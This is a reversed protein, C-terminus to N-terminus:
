NCPKPSCPDIFTGPCTPVGSGKPPEKVTYSAMFRTLDPSGVRVIGTFTTGTSAHDFDCCLNPEGQIGPGKPPEKVTYAKMFQTLDTSNVYVIGTFTTGTKLGDMDGHCQRAYCWCRPKGLQVWTTYCPDATFCMNVTCDSTGTNWASDACGAKTSCVRYRYLGNNVDDCKVLDSGTYINVWSGGGDASRDLKYGTANAVASWSIQYRGNNADSAPYTLTAPPGAPCVVFTITQDFPLNTTAASGNELVVGGRVTNVAVNLNDSAKGNADVRIKFLTGSTGPANTDVYLTGLECIVKRNGLGTNNSDVDGPPAIPYYYQAYWNPDAPNIQNRFQGPFIGYGGGPKNSEGRNYDSISNWTASNGASGFTLDLAFARVAEGGTTYKVTLLNADPGAGQTVTINVVALAPAAIMLSAAILLIRRM